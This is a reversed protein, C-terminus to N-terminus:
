SLRPACAHSPASPASLSFTALQSYEQPGRAQALDGHAYDRVLVRGGPRLAQAVTSVAQIVCEVSILQATLCVYNM